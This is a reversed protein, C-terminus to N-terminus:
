APQRRAAVFALLGLLAAAAVVSLILTGSALDAVAGTGTNPVATVTTTAGGGTTAPAPHSDALGTAAITVTLVFASIMAPVLRWM